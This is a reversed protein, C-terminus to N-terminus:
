PMRERAPRGDRVFGEAIWALALIVAGAVTLPIGLIGTAFFHVRAGSVATIVYGIALFADLVLGIGLVVRGALRIRRVGESSGM